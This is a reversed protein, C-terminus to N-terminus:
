NNKFNKKILNTYQKWARPCSKVLDELFSMLDACFQDLLMFSDVSEKFFAIEGGEKQKSLALLFSESRDHLLAWEELLAVTLSRSQNIQEFFGEMLTVFEDKIQGMLARLITEIKQKEKKSLENSKNRLKYEMRALDHICYNEREFLYSGIRKGNPTKKGNLAADLQHINHILGGIAKGDIAGGTGDLIALGPDNLPRPAESIVDPTNNKQAHVLFYQGSLYNLLLFLVIKKDIMSYKKM